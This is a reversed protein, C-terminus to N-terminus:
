LIFKLFDWFFEYFQFTKWFIEFKRAPACSPPAGLYPGIAPLEERREIQLEGM